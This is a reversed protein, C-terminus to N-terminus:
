EGSLVKRVWTLADGPSGIRLGSKEAVTPDDLFHRRNLSVLFDVGAIMAAVIIPVDVAHTCLDMHTAIMETDPDRVIRPRTYRLADRYYPLGQPAKRALARETEVIVQKSITLRIHGSEAMLLLARAAGRASIVGAM